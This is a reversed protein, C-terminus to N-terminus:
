ENDLLCKLVEELARLAGERFGDQWETAPTEAQYNKILAEIKEKM